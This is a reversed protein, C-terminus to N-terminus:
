PQSAAALRPDELTEFLREAYTYGQQLVWNPSVVLLWVMLLLVHVALTLVGAATVKDAVLWIADFVLNAVLLTMAVPKMAYLNRRFGYHTNEDQVRGFNSQQSRVRAILARTATVYMQDARAPNAEEASRDPLEINLLEALLERRRAFQPQNSIESHRLLHTTPMGNWRGAVLAAEVEQGRGRVWTALFYLAGLSIALPWLKALPSASWLLAVTVAVPAAALFAPYLRARLSYRDFLTAIDTM